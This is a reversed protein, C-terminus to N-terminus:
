LVGEFNSELSKHGSVQCRLCENCKQCNLVVINVIVIVITVRSYLTIPVANAIRAINTIDDRLTM